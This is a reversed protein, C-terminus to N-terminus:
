VDTAGALLAQEKARTYLTAQLGALDLPVTITLWQLPEAGAGAAAQDFFAELVVEVSNAGHEPRRWHLERIRIYGASSDIGYQTQLAKQLAM